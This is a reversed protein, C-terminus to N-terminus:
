KPRWPMPSLRSLFDDTGLINGGECDLLPSSSPHALDAAVFRQYAAIAHERQAHFMSLAFDTTVWPQTAEGAYAQHSSWPYDRPHAVMRARVPNLHIYRLLALLYEDAEVLVAHYRKEFLHGTTHLYKQVKRAYQGAIDHVVRGLPENGVQIMMHVHNTMWCYVHLLAEYRDLAEATLAEFLARDALSFFIDQRHNGRLTVHYLAGPFHLRLKRAMRQRRM